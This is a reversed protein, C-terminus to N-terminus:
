MESFFLDTNYEFLVNKKLNTLTFKRISYNRKLEEIYKYMDICFPTMWQSFTGHGRERSVKLSDPTSLGGEGDDEVLSYVVLGNNGSDLDYAVVSLFNHGTPTAVSLEATYPVERFVPPNDNVDLLNVTVRAASVRPGSVSQDSAM